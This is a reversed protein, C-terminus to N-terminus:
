EELSKIYAIIDDVKLRDDDTLLVPMLQSEYGAVIQAQPNVISDYLYAEDVVVTTGDSLMEERGFLGLWSPGVVVTGDISHCGVCGSDIAHRAGREEPTLGALAAANSRAEAVWDDFDAQSVVHVEALMAAHGTGCLEACRLRFDGIMTPTVRVDYVQGEILDRKVRFEPVWFAHNVGLQDDTAGEARLLFRVPRNVPLWLEASRLNDFEPYYFEWVWTSRGVVEVTLENSEVATIDDLVQQGWIGFVVVAVLPLGTWAIELATNGHFHVGDSDDGERRSFAFISYLMFVIILSFLFAIMAFHGTFLQDIASAEASAAVPLAYIATLVIYAVVTGVIVLVGAIVLHRRNDKM